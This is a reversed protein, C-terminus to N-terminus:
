PRQPAGSFHPQPNAPHDIPCWLVQLLDAESRGPPRLLPIDRVYLQAVPLMAIPGEPWPRGVEIREM